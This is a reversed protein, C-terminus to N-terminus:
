EQPQAWENPAIDRTPLSSLFEWHQAHAPDALVEEPLVFTVGDALCIPHLESNPVTEGSVSIAQQATLIIM